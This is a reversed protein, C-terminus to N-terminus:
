TQPWIHPLISSLNLILGFLGAFAILPEYLTELNIQLYVPCVKTSLGLPWCLGAFALLPWCLGAFALLPWCLGAFALLPWCLGAFAM